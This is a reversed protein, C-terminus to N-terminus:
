WITEVFRGLQNDDGRFLPRVLAVTVLSRVGGLGLLAVARDVSEVAQGPTRYLPSNALKLLSGVLAPDGSIIDAIERQSSDDDSTARLLRPLLLPRRPLFREDTAAAKLTRTAAAVFVVGALIMTERTHNEIWHTIRGMATVFEDRKMEKRTIRRAAM